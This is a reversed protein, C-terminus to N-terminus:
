RTWYTGNAWRIVRGNVQGALNGWDHAVIRNGYWLFRGYSQEGKENTFVLGRETPMVQIFCPLNPNGEEYWRGQLAYAQPPTPAWDNPNAWSLGALGVLVLLAFVSTRVM